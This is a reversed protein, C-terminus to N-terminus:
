DCVVTKKGLFLFRSIFSYISVQKTYHLLTENVFIQQWYLAWHCAHCAFFSFACALVPCLLFSPALYLFKYKSEIVNAKRTLKECKYLTVEELRTTKINNSRAAAEAALATAASEKKPTNEFLFANFVNLRENVSTFWLHISLHKLACRSERVNKYVYMYIM